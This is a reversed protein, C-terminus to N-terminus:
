KHSKPYMMETNFSVSERAHLVPPSFIKTLVRTLSEDEKNYQPVYAFTLCNGDREYAILSEKSLKSKDIPERGYGGLIQCFVPLHKGIKM